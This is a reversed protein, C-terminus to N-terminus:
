FLISNYLACLMYATGLMCYTYTLGNFIPYYSPRVLKDNDTLSEKINVVELHGQCNEQSVRKEQGERRTGRRLGGEQKKERQNRIHWVLWLREM